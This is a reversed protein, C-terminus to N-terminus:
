ANLGTPEASRPESERMGECLPALRAPLLRRSAHALRVLPGDFGTQRYPAESAQFSGPPDMCSPPRRRFSLSCRKAPPQTSQPTHTQKQKQKQKQKQRQEQKERKWQKATAPSKRLSHAQCIRLESMEVAWSGCCRSAPSHSM